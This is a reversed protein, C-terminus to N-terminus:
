LYFSVVYMLSFFVKSALSTDTVLLSSDTVLEKSFKALLLLYTWVIIISCSHCFDIFVTLSHSGHIYIHHHCRAEASRWELCIAGHSFLCISYDSSAPSRFAGLSLSRVNCELYTKLVKIFVLIINFNYFQNRPFSGM